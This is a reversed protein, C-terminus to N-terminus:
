LKSYQRQERRGERELWWRQVQIKRKRHMKIRTIFWQSTALAGFKSQTTPSCDIAYITSHPCSYSLFALLPLKFKRYYGCTCSESKQGLSRSPTLRMYGRFGRFDKTKCTVDNLIGLFKSIVQTRRWFGARSQGCKPVKGYNVVFNTQMCDVSDFLYFKM